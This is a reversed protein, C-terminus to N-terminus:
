KGAAPAAPKADKATTQPKLDKDTQVQSKTKNDKETRVQSKTKNDPKAIARKSGNKIQHSKVHRQTRVRANAYKHIRRHRRHAYRHRRHHRAYRRRHHRAYHRRHHRAYHRSHYMAYHRHYHRRAAYGKRHRKGHLAKKTSKKGTVSGKSDSARKETVSGAKPAERTVAKDEPKKVPAEAKTEAPAAKTDPKVAQKGNAPAPADTKKAPDTTPAPKAQATAGPPTAANAPAAQPTVATGSAPPTVTKGSATTGTAPKAQDAAKPPPTNEATFGSNVALLMAALGLFAVTSKKMNRVPTLNGSFARGSASAAKRGSAAM